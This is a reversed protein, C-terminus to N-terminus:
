SKESKATSSDKYTPKFTSVYVDACRIFMYTTSTEEIPKGKFSAFIEMEKYKANMAKITDESQIANKAKESVLGRFKWGGDMQVYMQYVNDEESITQDIKIYTDFISM